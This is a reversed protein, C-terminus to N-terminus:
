YEGIMIINIMINVGGIILLAEHVQQPELIEVRRIEEIQRRDDGGGGGGGAEKILVAVSRRRQWRWRWGGGRENEKKKKKMKGKEVRGGEMGELRLRWLGGGSSRRGEAVEVALPLQRNEYIYKKLLFDVKLSSM